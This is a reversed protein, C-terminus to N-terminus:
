EVQAVTVYSARTKDIWKKGLLNWIYCGILFISKDLALSVFIISNTVLSHSVLRYRWSERSACTQTSPAIGCIRRAFASSNICMKTLLEFFNVSNRSCMTFTYMQQKCIINQSQMDIETTARKKKQVSTLKIRVTICTFRFYNKLRRFVNGRREM